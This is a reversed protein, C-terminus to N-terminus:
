RIALYATQAIGGNAVVESKLGSQSFFVNAYGYPVDLVSIVGKEGSYIKVQTGNKYSVTASVNVPLGFFDKTTVSVTYVPLSFFLVSPSNGGTQGAAMAEFVTNQNKWDLFNLSSIANRDGDPPKEWM